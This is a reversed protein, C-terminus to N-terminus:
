IIKESGQDVNEKKRGTKRKLGKVQVRNSVRMTCDNAKMACVLNHRSEDM